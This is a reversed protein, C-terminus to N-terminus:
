RAGLAYVRCPARAALPCSSAHEELDLHLHYLYFASWGQYWTAFEVGDARAVRGFLQRVIARDERTPLSGTEISCLGADLPEQESRLRARERAVAELPSVVGSTPLPGLGARKYDRRVRRLAVFLRTADDV